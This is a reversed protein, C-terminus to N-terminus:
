DVGVAVAETTRGKQVEIIRKKRLDDLDGILDEMEKFTIRPLTERAVTEIDEENRLAVGLEGHQSAFMLLQAEQLTVSVTVSGGGGSGGSGPSTVNQMDDGVAIITVNQLLVINVMDSHQRWAAATAGAAKIADPLAFSSIIDIHDNPKLLKGQVGMSVEITFARESSPVLGALGGHREVAFDTWQIIDGEKVRYQLKRGIVQRLEEAGRVAQAPIFQPPIEKGFVMSQKLEAGADIDVSAAVVKKGKLQDEYQDRISQVYSRIALVGIILFVVAVIIPARNKM